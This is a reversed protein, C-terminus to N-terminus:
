EVTAAMLYILPSNWYITVENCSYSQESDAYCKAAPADSLVAQAYPDELSSDPGGVLMGPMCSGLAQSPRHHPSTPSLTGAGTIFCYGTANVGMLYNLQNKACTLYEANPKLENALCLLMGSNAVGMNSGWEYTNEKNVMYANASSTAVVQDVSAFFADEIDQRLSSSDTLLEPTTLAAYAGYAAVDAWGLGGYNSIKGGAMLESMADRYTTDGTVKYLEAAAWFFEDKSNGDAYEGTVVDDPNQFGRDDAHEQGYSWAKEAAALCQAAYDADTDQYIRSALAMVAAFDM